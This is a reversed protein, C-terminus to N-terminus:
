NKRPTGPQRVANMFMFFRRRLTIKFPRSTLRVSTRVSGEPFKARIAEVQEDLQVAEDERGIKHLANAHAALSDVWIWANREGYAQQKIELSRKRLPEAEAYNEQAEYIEALRDVSASIPVRAHKIQADLAERNRRQLTDKTIAAIQDTMKIEVLALSRRSLDEAEAYRGRTRCFRALEDLVRVVSFDKPQESEESLRLARRYLDEAAAYKEQVEYVKAFELLYHPLSHDQGRDTARTELARQFLPEADAYRHQEVYFRALSLATSFYLKNGAPSEPKETEALAATYHEEAKAVQKQTQYLRALQLHAAHVEANSQPSKIADKLQEHLIVEAERYREQEHYVQALGYRMFILHSQDDSAQADAIARLYLQEALALDGKNRANQTERTLAQFRKAAATEFAPYFAMRLATVLRHNTLTAIMIVRGNHWWSQGGDVWLSRM